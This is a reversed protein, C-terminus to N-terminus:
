SGLHLARVKHHQGHVALAACGIGDCGSMLIHKLLGVVGEVSERVMKVAQEGWGSVTEPLSAVGECAGRM